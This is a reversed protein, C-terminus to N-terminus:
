RAGGETPEHPVIWSSGLAAFAGVAAWLLSGGAAVGIWGSRRSSRGASPWLWPRSSCGPSRGRSRRRPCTGRGRGTAGPRVLGGRGGRPAALVVAEGALSPRSGDGLTQGRRGALDGSLPARVAGADGPGGGCCGARRALMGSSSRGPRARRDLRGDALGPRRRRDERGTRGPDRGAPERRQERDRRVGVEARRADGPGRRRAPGRDDRRGHVVRARVGPRDPGLGDGATRAPPDAAPPPIRHEHDRGEHADPGGRGPGPRARRGPSRRPRPSGAPDDPAPRAMRRAARRSDQDVRGAAALRRPRRGALVRRPPRLDVRRPARGLEQGLPDPLRGLDPLDRGCPPGRVSRRAVTGRDDDAAPPM